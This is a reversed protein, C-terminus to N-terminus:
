FNKKLAFILIFILFLEVFYIGAPQWCLSVLIEGRGKVTGKLSFFIGDTCSFSLLLKYTM